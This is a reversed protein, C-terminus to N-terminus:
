ITLVASDKRRRSSTKCKPCPLLDPCGKAVVSYLTDLRVPMRPIRMSKAFVGCSECDYQAWFLVPDQDLEVM